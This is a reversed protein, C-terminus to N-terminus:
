ANGKMLEKMYLRLPSEEDGADSNVLSLLIKICNNYQQLFEKYQKGAATAKQQAKNAPNISIFPYKKLETLQKELFVVDDIMPLVIQKASEDLESFVKQLEEKRNIVIVLKKCKPFVIELFRLFKSEAVNNIGKWDELM